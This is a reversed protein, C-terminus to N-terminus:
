DPTAGLFTGMQIFLFIGVITLPVVFWLLHRKFHQKLWIGLNIPIYTGLIFIPSIFLFFSGQGQVILNLLRADRLSILGFFAPLGLSLIIVIILLKRKDSNFYFDIIVSAVINYFLVAPALFILGILFSQFYTEKIFEM